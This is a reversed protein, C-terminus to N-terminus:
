SMRLVPKVVEGARADAAAENIQDFDYARVLRDIPLKGKRWFDVLQPIFTETVSHGEVLGRV